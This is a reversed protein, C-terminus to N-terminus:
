ALWTLSTRSVPACVCLLLVLVRVERVSDVVFGLISAFFFIGVVAIFGSVARDIPTSADAHTGPDAMYVWALWLHQPFSSCRVQFDHETEGTRNHCWDSDDYDEEYEALMHMAACCSVVVIFLLGLFIPQLHQKELMKDRTYVVKDLLSIKEPDLKQVVEAALDV